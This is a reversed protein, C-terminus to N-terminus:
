ATHVPLLCAQANLMLPLASGATHIGIDRNAAINGDIPPMRLPPLPNHCADSRSNQPLCGQLSAYSVCIAAISKLPLASALWNGAM